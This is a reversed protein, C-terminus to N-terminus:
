KIIFIYRKSIDNFWIDYTGEAVPINPGNASAQGSYATDGGWNTDWSDGARFKLEGDFVQVDRIFWIHTDFGLKTMDTDPDAWGDDNGTRASGITGITSYVPAASVDAPEFSWTLEDINVTLTYYGDTSVTFSGPDGGLLDSSTLNGNDLGWQPQWQGRVELLKFEGATFKGTYTYVNTNVPDRFLPPNNNDNEWGAATANGVLFLNKFDPEEEAADEPLVVTIARPESTEVLPNGGGNGAFARVRFYIQGTNPAETEPDADLGADMALSMMQSVTVALNNSSTAGIVDFSAFDPDASGQVEYTINTPVGFDVRNWVFREAVNGRTPPTLVYEQNFDNVFSIGEPDPQAIFVVDDDSTCANFGVFAVFALLLISLKKM